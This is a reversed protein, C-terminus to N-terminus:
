QLPIRWEVAVVIAIIAVVTIILIASTTTTKTNTKPWRNLESVSISTGVCTPPDNWFREWCNKSYSDYVTIPNPFIDKLAITRKSEERETIEKLGLLAAASVIAKGQKESSPIPATYRNCKGIAYFIDVVWDGTDENTGYSIGWGYKQCVSQNLTQTSSVM